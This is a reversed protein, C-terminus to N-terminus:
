VDKAAEDESYPDTAPGNECVFVEGAKSKLRFTRDQQHRVDGPTYGIACLVRGWNADAGFM